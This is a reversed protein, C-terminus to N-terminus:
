FRIRKTQCFSLAAVAPRYCGFWYSLERKERQKWRLSSLITPACEVKSVPDPTRNGPSVVCKQSQVRYYGHGLTAGRHSFPILSSLSVGQFWVYSKMTVIHCVSVSLIARCWSHHNHSTILNGYNYSVHTSMLCHFRTIIRSPSLPFSDFLFISILNFHQSMLIPVHTSPTYFLTCPTNSAIPTPSLSSPLPRDLTQAHCWM